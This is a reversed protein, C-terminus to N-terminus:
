GAGRTEVGHLMATLGANAAQLEASMRGIQQSLGRISTIHENVAGVNKSVETAATSSERVNGSMESVVREAQEIQESVHQTRSSQDGIASAIDAVVRDVEGMIGTISEMKQVASRTAEEIEEVRMRIGATADATQRALLKVETAVVAFGRGSEGARAAEITANLALLKTQDAIEAIMESVNRIESASTGLAAVATAADTVGHVAQGSVRRATETSRAIAVVTGAIETAARTVSTINGKSREASRALSSMNASMQEASAAVSQAEGVISTSQAELEGLVSGLEGVVRDLSSVGSALGSQVERTRAQTHAILDLLLKAGGATILDQGRRLRDQILKVVKPSGTLELVLDLPKEMLAALTPVFTVGLQMARKVGPADANLDTIGAVFVSEYAAFFDLVAVAARGGGVIGIRTQESNTDSM